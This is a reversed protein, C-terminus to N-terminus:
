ENQARVDLLLSPEIDAAPADPLEFSFISGGRPNPKLGVSGGHAEALRKVTALGLGIGPVSTNSGRVYPEFAKAGLPVGPGTDIVEFLVRGRKARARLAVERKTSDGMYKVANRMLNGLLSLLVGSTCAVALGEPVDAHIETGAEAAVPALEEVLGAVVPTVPTHAGPEPAAGARAFGLLGDVIRRVRALSSHGRQIADAAQPAPSSKEAVALCLSVASLPSLIDHAVRSAFLELEEVKRETVRRSEEHLRQNQRIVRWTLATAILALLASVADLEYAVRDARVRAREIQDAANEVSHADYAILDKIAQGAQDGLTQLEVPEVERPWHRSREMAREGAEDFARISAQMHSFLAAEQADTPLTLFRGLVSDLRSRSASVEQATARGRTFRIVRTELDRLEARADSLLEIGPAADRSIMVTDADISRAAHQVWLTSSIFAGVVALFAILLARTSTAM